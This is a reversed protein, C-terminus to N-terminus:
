ILLELNEYFFLLWLISFYWLMIYWIMLLSNGTRIGMCYWWRSLLWSCFLVHKIPPFHVLTLWRSLSYSHVFHVWNNLFFNIFWLCYHLIFDEALHCSYWSLVNYIYCIINLASMDYNLKMHDIWLMLGKKTPNVSDRPVRLVISTGRHLVCVM